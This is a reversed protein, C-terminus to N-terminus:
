KWTGYGIMFCRRLQAGSLAELHDDHLINPAQCDAAKVHKKEEEKEREALLLCIGKNM